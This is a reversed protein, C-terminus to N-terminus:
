SAEGENTAASRGTIAVSLVWRPHAPSISDDPLSVVQIVDSTAITAQADSPIGLVLESVATTISLAEVQGNEQGIVDVQVTYEHWGPVGRVVPTADMTRAIISPYEVDTPMEDAYIRGGVSDMLDSDDRLWRAVIASTDIM